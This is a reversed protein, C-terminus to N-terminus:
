ARTSPRSLSMLHHGGVPPSAYCYIAPVQPLRLKAQQEVLRHERSSSIPRKSRRGGEEMASHDQAQANSALGDRM